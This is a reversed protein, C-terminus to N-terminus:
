APKKYTSCYNLDYIQRNKIVGFMIHILKNRVNNIVLFRDKGEHLKRIYYEKLQKDHRVAARAAETLMAKMRNNALDCVKDKGKLSTGSCHSFPVVGCYCGFKRPDDFLSFNATLVLMMLANESGIGKISTLLKYNQYLDEDSAILIKIKKDVVKLQSKILEIQAQSGSTIFEM